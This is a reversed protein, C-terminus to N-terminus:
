NKMVKNRDGEYPLQCMPMMVTTDTQGDAQGGCKKNVQKLQHYVHAKSSEKTKSKYQLETKPLTVYYTTKVIGLVKMDKSVIM